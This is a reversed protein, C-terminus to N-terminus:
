IDFLDNGYWVMGHWIMWENMHYGDCITCYLKAQLVYRHRHENDDWRNCYIWNIRNHVWSYLWKITFHTTWCDCSTLVYLLLCTPYGPYWVFWHWLRSSPWRIWLRIIRLIVRENMMWFNKLCIIVYYHDNADM